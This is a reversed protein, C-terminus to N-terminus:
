FGRRAADAAMAMAMLRRFFKPPQGDFLRDATFSKITAVAGAHETLTPRIVSVEPLGQRLFDAPEPLILNTQSLETAAKNLDPFTVGTQPDVVGALPQAVANGMKDHWLGFHDVEVGGISIVIRLVELDRVKLALSSYLSAGGQEIYGFHFAATNAIAQMRLAASTVPPVPQDTGPPTETDNLPIAPENVINVAQAFTAGLDPNEASRYRTYFSTDVVLKQLNTLRGVQRAGSAQTSPLTRFEDLNVPEAGRSKLYANLFDAHSVEDDTNDSIYQPMDGDLNSLAAMYAANGGSMGGLENYQQWLDTEIIEAAALFRLIAVDGTTLAGAVANADTGAAKVGAALLGGTPLMMGAVGIGKLFARRRVVNNWRAHTDAESAGAARGSAGPSSLSKDQV